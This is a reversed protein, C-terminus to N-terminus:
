GRCKVGARPRGLPDTGDVTGTSSEVIFRAFLEEAYWRERAARAVAERHAPSRYALSEIADADRWLSFTGAVAVPAEGIGIAFSLGGAARLEATVAPTARAFRAARGPRLRARTLVAIPGGYASPVAASPGSPADSPEPREPGFPQRGSWRGRSCLPRLAIRWSRAAIHAWGAAVPSDREFSTAAARSDWCGLLAWRRPEASAPTFSRGNATGLLKAFRLGSVRRLRRRDTAIRMLADPVRHRGVRWVHLTVLEPAGDGVPEDPHV